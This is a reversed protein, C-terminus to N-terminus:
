KDQDDLAEFYNQLDEDVKFNLSFVGPKVANFLSVIASGFPIMALLLVTILLAPLSHDRRLQDFSLPVNHFSLPVDDVTKLPAVVNSFIQNNSLYWYTFMIYVIPAYFLIHITGMTM